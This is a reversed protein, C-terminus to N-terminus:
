IHNGLLLFVKDPYSKKFEILDLLNDLIASDTLHFSDTYDGVFIIKDYLEPDITKWINNGHLDGVSIIKM